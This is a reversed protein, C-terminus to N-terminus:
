APPSSARPTASATRADGNTLRTQFWTQMMSAAYDAMAKFDDRGTALKWERALLLFWGSGYPNDTLPLDAGKAQQYAQEAPVLSVGQPFAQQEVLQRFAYAGTHNCIAM